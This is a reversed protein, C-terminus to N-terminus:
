RVLTVFDAVVAERVQENMMFALLGKTKAGAATANTTDQEAGAANFGGNADGSEILFPSRRELWTNM